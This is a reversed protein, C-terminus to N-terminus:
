QLDDTYVTSFTFLTSFPIHTRIECDRNTRLSTVRLETSCTTEPVAIMSSAPSECLGSALLLFYLLPRLLGSLDLSTFPPPASGVQPERSSVILQM